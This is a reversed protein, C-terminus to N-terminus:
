PKVVLELLFFGSLKYYRNWTKILWSRALFGPFHLKNKPLASWFGVRGSVNLLSVTQYPRLLIEFAKFFMNDMQSSTIYVKM